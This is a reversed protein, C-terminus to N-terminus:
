LWFGPPEEYYLSSFTTRIGSCLCDMASRHKFSKIGGGYTLPMFCENAIEQLLKYDVSNGERSAAIDLLILEDVEKENFIRVTNIPDGIYQPNKFKTTKVLAGDKLLLCPIFRTILM